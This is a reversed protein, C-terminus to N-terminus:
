RKGNLSPAQVQVKPFKVSGLFLSILLEKLGMGGCEESSLWLTFWSAISCHTSQRQKEKINKEVLLNLFSVPLYGEEREEKWVQLTVCVCHKWLNHSQILSSTNLLIHSTIVADPIIFHQFTYAFLPIPPQAPLHFITTHPKPLSIQSESNIQGTVSCSYLMHTCLSGKQRSTGGKGFIWSENFPRKMSFLSQFKWFDKKKRRSSSDTFPACILHWGLSM